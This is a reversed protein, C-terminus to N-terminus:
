YPITESLLIFFKLHHASKTQVNDADRSGDELMTNNAKAVNQVM